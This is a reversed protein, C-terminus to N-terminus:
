DCSGKSLKLCTESIGLFDCVGENSLLCKGEADFLWPFVQKMECYRFKKDVSKLLATHQRWVQMKDGLIKQTLKHAAIHKEYLGDMFVNSIAVLECDTCLQMYLDSSNTNQVFEDFLVVIKKAPWIFLIIQRGTKPDIQYLKVLGKRLFYAQNVVIGPSLLFDGKYKISPKLGDDSMLGAIMEDPINSYLGKLYDCVEQKFELKQRESLKSPIRKAM